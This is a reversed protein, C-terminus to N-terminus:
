AAVPVRDAERDTRRALLADLRAEMFRGNDTFWRECAHYPAIPIFGLSRYLRLAETQLTGTELRMCTYHRLDSLRALKKVIARALGLGQFAPRVFLRKMECVDEGIGRMMACGAPVGDVLALVIAGHPAGYHGELDTLQSEWEREDFYADLMDGQRHYRRRMWLLYDRLLSAVQEFHRADVAEIISIVSM